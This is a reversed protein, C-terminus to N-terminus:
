APEWVLMVREGGQGVCLADAGLRPLFILQDGRWVLPLRAREFEAVGAEQFLAKLTKHPRAPHLKFREGGTRPRSELPQARLWQAEFGTPSQVFAFRGAWEPLVLYPEGKWHLRICEPPLAAHKYSPQSVLLGRYRHIEIAGVNVRMRATSRAHLAQELLEHLRARSPARVGLTALWHRLVLAQQRPSFERLRDLRLTHAPADETCRELGCQALEDLLQAAEAILEISRATTGHFNPQVAALAPMVHHRVANRAYATDANSPDDIFRLARQTCYREILAREVAAFPRLLAVGPVLERADPFAALGDVGAGRLWQLLFTEIRDDLHHAVLVAHAGRAQAIEALARYRAARADAELGAGTREVQVHRLEFDIGRQACQERCHTSWADAQPHLGHHVHIAFSSQAAALGEDRLRCLLDLLATSDRGGSYAVAVPQHRDDVCSGDVTFSLARRVADFLSLEIDKSVKPIPCSVEFRM